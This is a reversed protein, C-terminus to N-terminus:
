LLVDFLRGSLPADALTDLPVSQRASSVFLRKRDTGGVALDTPCPIPMGVVRDLTGDATFRVVSWGNCLATWIGGDADFTLGSIRGSGKPISALRRVTPNGPRLMLIAGADAAGAYLTNDEARYRLCQLTEPQAM